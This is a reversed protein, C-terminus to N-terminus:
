HTADPQAAAKPVFRGRIECGPNQRLWAIADSRKEWEDWYRTGPKGPKAKPARALELDATLVSVRERLAVLEANATALMQTLELKTTQAM